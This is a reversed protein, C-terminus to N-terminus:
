QFYDSCRNRYYRYAAPYYGGGTRANPGTYFFRLTKKNGPISAPLTRGAADDVGAAKPSNRWSPSKASSREAPYKKIDVSIRRITVIM